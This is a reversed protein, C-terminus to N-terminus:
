AGAFTVRDDVLRREDGGVLAFNTPSSVDTTPTTNLSCGNAYGHRDEIVLRHDNL